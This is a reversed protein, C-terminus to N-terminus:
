GTGEEMWWETFETARGDPAFRIVWLNSYRKPPHHYATWGRVFGVDHAVALVEFRFEFTGPEDKRDLWGAIIADRGSWPTRYPATYYAADVTFLRAIDAPDNTNWARVYGTIWSEVDRRDM